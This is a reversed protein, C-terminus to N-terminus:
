AVSVATNTSFVINEGNFQWVAKGFILKGYIYPNIEIRNLEIWKCNYRDKHWYWVISVVM